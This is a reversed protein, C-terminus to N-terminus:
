LKHVRNTVTMHYKIHLCQVYTGDLVISARVFIMAVHVLKCTIATKGRARFCARGNDRDGRLSAPVIQIAWVRRVSSNPWERLYHEACRLTNKDQHHSRTEPHSCFAGPHLEHGVGQVLDAEAPVKSHREDALPIPQTALQDPLAMPCCGLWSLNELIHHLSFDCARGSWSTYM